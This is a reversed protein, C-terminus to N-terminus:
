VSEVEPALLRAVVDTRKLSAMKGDKWGIFATQNGQGKLRRMGHGIDDWKPDFKARSTDVTRNHKRNIVMGKKAKVKKSKDSM